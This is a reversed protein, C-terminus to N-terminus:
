QTKALRQERCRELEDAERDAIQRKNAKEWDVVCGICVTYGNIVQSCQPHTLRACSECWLNAEGHLGCTKCVVVENMQTTVRLAVANPEYGSSGQM